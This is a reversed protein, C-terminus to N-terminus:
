TELLRDVAELAQKLVPEPDRNDVCIIEIAGPGTPRWRARFRPCPAGAFVTLLPVGCAAAAHQGASDYGVYLRSRAIIGAFAAFSGQFMRIRDQRAGIAQRM